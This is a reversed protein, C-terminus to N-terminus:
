IFQITQRAPSPRQRVRRVTVTLDCIQNGFTLSGKGIFLSPLIHHFFFQTRRLRTLDRFGFTLMVPESRKLVLSHLCAFDLRSLM